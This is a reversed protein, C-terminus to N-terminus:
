ARSKKSKAIDAINTQMSNIWEFKRGWAMATKRTRHCSESSEGAISYRWWPDITLLAMSTARPAWDIVNGDRWQPRMQMGIWKSRYCNNCAIRDCLWLVDPVHAVVVVCAGNSHRHHSARYKAGFVHLSFRMQSHKKKRMTKRKFALCSKELIRVFQIRVPANINRFKVYFLLLVGSFSRTDTHKTPLWLIANM